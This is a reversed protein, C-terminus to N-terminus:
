EAIVFRGSRLQDGFHVVAFYVGPVFEDTQLDLQHIGSVMEGSGLTRVMRGTIDYVEIRADGASPLTFSVTALGGSAPNPSISVPLSHAVGGYSGDEVGVGCYSSWVAAGQTGAFLYEGPTELVTKVQPIGPDEGFYVPTGSWNEWIWIGASTSICLGGLMESQYLDLATSFGSTVKSWVMGGDTSHYLGSSSAAALHEPDSPDVMLGYPTGTYGTITSTTWSSGGNMTSFLAYSGNQYGLCYVKDANVPDVAIARVYGYQTGSYLTHRTWTAGGDVSQSAVAMYNPSTYKYGCSWFTSGGAYVMGYGDGYYSDAM